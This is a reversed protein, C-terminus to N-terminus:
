FFPTWLGSAAALLFYKYTASEPTATDQLVFQFWTSVIVRFNVITRIRINRCGLNGCWKKKPVPIREWKGTGEGERLDGEGSELMLDAADRWSM